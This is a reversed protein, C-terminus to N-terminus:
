SSATWRALWGGGTAAAPSPARVDPEIECITDLARAPTLGSLEYPAYGTALTYLLVALGYVDSAAIPVEGRAQEPSMCPHVPAAAGGHSSGFGLLSSMGCDLLRVEAEASVLINAPRLDGHIILHEHVHQVADCVALVLGVRDRLDLRRERCWTDVPDGAAYEFALYAKGNGSVGGDLLRPIGPHDLHALIDSHVHLLEALAPDRADATLVHLAV